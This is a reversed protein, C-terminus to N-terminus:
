GCRPCGHRHEGPVFEIGCAPAPPVAPAVLAWEYFELAEAPCIRCGTCLPPCDLRRVRGKAVLRDLMARLADPPAGFRLSLQALSVRDRARVYSQLESLIV